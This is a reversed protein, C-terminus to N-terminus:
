RAPLPALEHAFPSLRENGDDTILFMWELRVGGINPDYAGPELLLVMGPQLVADGGPVIRPWEHVSTGIGHGIHIPDRMDAREIVGRILADLEGATIGPRLSSAAVDIAQSVVSYMRRFPAPPEGIFLTNCSDGWYGKARPALDCILPDAEELSRGIPWGGIAATRSIGSVLDGTIALREGEAAEIAARVEHFVELETRGVRIAHRAAEQGIATLKACGRLRELELETKVARQIALERDISVLEKALPGIADLAAKPFSGVQVAVRGGVGMETALKALAEGYKVELPRRDAYGLGEYVVVKAASNAKAAAAELDSVVLGVSGDTGIIATSPGGSLPSPGAEIAPMHDAVYVVADFSTLVGWDAGSSRVAWAARISREDKAVSM